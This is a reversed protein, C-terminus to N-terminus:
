DSDQDSAPSPSAGNACALARRAVPSFARARGAARVAALERADSLGAILLKDIEKDKADLKLKHNEVRLTDIAGDKEARLAEIAGDKEDRLSELRAAHQEYRNFLRASLATFRHSIELVGGHCWVKPM